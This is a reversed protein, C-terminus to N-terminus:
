SLRYGVKDGKAAFYRANREHIPGFPAAGPPLLPCEVFPVQVETLHKASLHYPCM